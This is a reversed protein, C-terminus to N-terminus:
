FSSKVNGTNHSLSCDAIQCLFCSLAIDNLYRYPSLAKLGVHYKNKVTVVDIKILQEQNDSQAFNEKVWLKEKSLSCITLPCLIRFSNIM